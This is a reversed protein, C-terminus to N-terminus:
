FLDVEGMDVPSKARNAPQGILGEALARLGISQLHRDLPLTINQDVTLSLASIFNALENVTQVLHDLGQLSVLLRDGGPMGEAIVDGVRDELDQARVALLVMEASLNSLFDQLIIHEPFVPKM